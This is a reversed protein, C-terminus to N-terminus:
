GRKTIKIARVRDDKGIGLEYEVVDGVLLSKKGYVDKMNFYINNGNEKIFGSGGHPLIKIVTGKLRENKGEISVVYKKAIDQLLSINPKKEVDIEFSYIAFKLEEPITWAQRKRYYASAQFYVEANENNGVSQWLLATDLLLNVMKEHEFRCAYAKSAYLLAEPLKNYRFCIQSLKHYMFWYNEKYALDKYESIASETDEQVMCKSFYMRARLWIQNRYHFKRIQQFATECIKMCDEYRGTKELSKAMYQYYFEKPSALERNKGTEDIFQFEDESLIDPNLYSLWKIIDKYNNKNKGNYTKIVKRITIVYPNKFSENANLQNCNDKIFEAKTIFINFGEYDNFSYNKIYVDYICWCLTDVIYKNLSIKSELLDECIDVFKRNEGLKRLSRGYCSLLYNNKRKSDDWLKEYIIKALPYNGKNYEAKANEQTYEIEELTSIADM